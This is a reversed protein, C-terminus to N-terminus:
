FYSKHEGRCFFRQLQTFNFTSRNWSWSVLFLYRYSTTFHRKRHETRDRYSSSRDANYIKFLIILGLIQLKVNQVRNFHVIKNLVKGNHIRFRNIDVQNSGTRLCVSFDHM